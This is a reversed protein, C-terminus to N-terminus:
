ISVLESIICSNPLTFCGAYVHGGPGQPDAPCQSNWPSDQDWLTQCPPGVVARARCGKVLNGTESVSKWEAIIDPTASLNNERVYQIEERFADLTFRFGESVRDPDFHGTTSYALIPKVRDDAAVIVFGEGNGVNFAYYDVVGRDAVITELRLQSNGLFKAGLQQSKQQDVPGANMGGIAIAVLCLTLFLKKM